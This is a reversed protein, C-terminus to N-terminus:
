ISGVLESIFNLDRLIFWLPLELAAGYIGDRNGGLQSCCLSEIGISIISATDLKLM